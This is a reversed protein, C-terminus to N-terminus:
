ERNYFARGSDESSIMLRKIQREMQEQVPVDALLPKESVMFLSGNNQVRRDKHQLLGNMALKWEGDKQTRYKYFYVKGREGKYSLEQQMLLALSDLSGGMYAKMMSASLLEQSGYRPPFLAAHGSRQLRSYLYAGYQADSGLVQWISDPVPKGYRLMLMATNLRVQRDPAQLLKDFFSPLNPNKDYYPMLLAEYYYLSNNTTDIDTYGERGAEENSEMARAAIGASRQLKKLALKADFYINGVYDEYVGASVYNSDLLDSLLRRVPDKYAEIMSLNMLGPYLLAALKLSDNYVSLFDSYEETDEFAPPDQLVLDRFLLTAKEQKLNALAALAENQFVATDATAEYLDKLFGTVGAAIATDNCFGLKAILNAKLDYYDKDTRNLAALAKRIEPLGKAGFSVSPLASRAIKRTLSDASYYDELFIDRKHDYLAPVAPVGNFRLSSFVSRVFDSEPAATDTVTAAVLVQQGQMLLLKRISRSSGTDRLQVLIGSRAGERTIYERRALVLSSDPYLLNNLFQLTDNVQFYKPYRFTNIVVAEGTVESILNAHGHEPLARYTAGAKANRDKKKVYTLMDRVESDVQPYVPTQVVFDLSTDTYTTAPAYRYPVVTFANFFPTADFDRDATRVALMYYDPGQLLFRAKVYDGGKVKLVLDLVPRGKYSKLTRAIKQVVFDASCFSEGALVLGFTDAEIFDFSYLSKKFLVYSNGQVPDYAEYKWVPLNDSGRLAYYARPNGPMRLEFGGTAPRFLQWGPKQVGERIRISNFFTDAEAGYVYAGKGGMKFVLLEGPTVLIRYRQMDGKRTRNLIDFGKYGDRVIAERSIIRGPINEYLLSDILHLQEQERYGNFLINTKVRSILYYSGNGMDAYHLKSFMSNDDTVNLQGPASVSFFSDAAYQRRFRVPVTLSDIYEKQVASRDQMYVPRLTYGKARLLEIVGEKGPLHAAGVGAFLSRTRIISDIARAQIGNRDYLFKRTFLRSPETLTSLSDLLDLDGRRYADQIRQGVDGYRGQADGAQNRTEDNAMDVYAEVMMRQAEIFTEVGTTQKGLKKGTQYIYLDLYTDEQFNDISSESRYLLADNLEPETRLVDRLQPVYDGETYAKETLYDTFYTSAYYRYAEGQRNLRPIDQQWYEPDLEIAVADVNKIAAYFSDSLNFVMKNSIHMTGFLYSPRQLGRGTIEWLLSPYRGPRQAVSRPAYLVFLLVAVLYLSRVPFRM